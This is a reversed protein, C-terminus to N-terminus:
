MLVDKGIPIVCTVRFVQGSVVSLSGGVAEARRRLNRLGIGAQKNDSGAGDNEISLRIIHPTVDLNVSVYKASSHRAANTLSENLCAELMTWIYVPVKSTDGYTTFNVGCVPFRRCTEALSNVGFDAAAGLNHVANRIKDAGNKLRELAADYLELAEKDADAFMDRATQLSIYAAVIEHGANDHIEHAIRTREAAATMREVQSLASTLDNQLSELEYYRVATKDRLLLKHQREREWFNLFLGCLAAFVLLTALFPDFNYLLLAIILAAPYIGWYMASFLPIALVFPALESMVFFALCVAIDVLVTYKASQVRWRFLSMVVLFLLLIFGPLGSTVLSFAYPTNYAYVAWLAFM